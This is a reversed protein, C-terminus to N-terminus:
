ICDDVISESMETYSDSKGSIAICWGDLSRALTGGYRLADNSVVAPGNDRQTESTAGRKEMIGDSGGCAFQVRREKM